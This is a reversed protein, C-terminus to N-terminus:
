ASKKNSCSRTKKKCYGICCLYNLCTSSSLQYVVHMCVETAVDDEEVVFTDRETGQTAKWEADEKDRESKDSGSLMMNDQIFQMKEVNLVCLFTPM